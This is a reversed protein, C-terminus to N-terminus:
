RSNMAHASVETYLINLGRHVFYEYLKIECSGVTGSIEKSTFFIDSIRYNRLLQNWASSELDEM